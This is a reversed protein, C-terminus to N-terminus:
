WPGSPRIRKRRRPRGKGNVGDNVADRDESEDEDEQRREGKRRIRYFQAAGLFAIGLGVPIPKWEIKTDRRTSRWRSRFPRGDHPRAENRARATSSIGRSLSQSERYFLCKHETPPHRRFLIDGLRRELLAIRQSCPAM